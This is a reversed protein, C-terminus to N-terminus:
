PLVERPSGAAAVRGAELLVVRDAIERVVQMNHEVVVLALGEDRLGRLLSCIRETEEPSAGATPEDVLLVPAGTAYATAVMLLRRQAANLEGALVEGPLQFRQLIRDAEGTFAADEDRAQPTALLARVFGGRRRRRASGVLLHELATLSPFVATAQLTRVADSTDVRGADPQIAGSLLRLVTTKGSGNPGVLAAITGPRVDLSVDDAAVVEGYRKTLGAATLRGPTARPPV